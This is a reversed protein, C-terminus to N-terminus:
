GARAPGVAALLPRTGPAAGSAAEDAVLFDAAISAAISAPEKSVIGAVGVPCRFATAVERSLGGEILRREFRARKTASGILGVYAAGRGSLVAHLIRLDVEHDHTMILVFADAPMAAVTTEPDAVSVCRTGGPVAAPFMGDREDIWTVSFPLPALALVVARGVHGAGFLYVPRRRRGITEVLRSRDLSATPRREGPGTVRRDVPRGAEVDAVVTVPGADISAALASVADLRAATFAEVLVTVHGGCCQGLAPGLAFRVVDAGDAGAQLLRRAAAIAENELRGGGITGAIDGARSVVMRAGAERPTSGRAGVVTVLAAAGDAAILRSLIAFPNV